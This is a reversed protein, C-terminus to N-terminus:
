LKGNAQKDFVYLVRDLVEFEVKRSEALALLRDLYDWYLDIKAENSSSSHLPYAEGYVARYAHRDVIQFAKRNRFRLFTSAMPLDVGPQRLLTALVATASRHSRPSTNRVENLVELVDEPLEAYRNVKWLVIENVIDQDFPKHGLEDLYATLKRQYKYKTLYATLDGEHDEAKKM